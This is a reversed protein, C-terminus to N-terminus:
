NYLYFPIKLQKELQKRNKTTNKKKRAMHGHKITSTLCTHTYLYYVLCNTDTLEINKKRKKKELLILNNLSM